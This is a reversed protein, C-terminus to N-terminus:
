VEFTGSVPDNTLGAKTVDLGPLHAEKCLLWLCRQRGKPRTGHGTDAERPEKGLDEQEPDQKKILKTDQSM